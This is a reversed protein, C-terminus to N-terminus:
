GRREMGIGYLASLNLQFTSSHLGRSNPNLGMTHYASCVSSCPPTRSTKRAPGDRIIGAMAYGGDGGRGGEEKREEGRGKRERGRREEGKREEERGEQGRGEEGRGEEGRREEGRGEEGKREEGRGEM